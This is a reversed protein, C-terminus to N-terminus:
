VKSDKDILALNIVFHSKIRLDKDQFDRSISLEKRLRFADSVAM